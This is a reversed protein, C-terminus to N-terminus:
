DHTNKLFGSINKLILFCVQNSKTYPEPGAPDVNKMTVKEVIQKEKPFVRLDLPEEQPPEQYEPTTTETNNSLVTELLFNDIEKTSREEATEDSINVLITFNKKDLPHKDFLLRAVDDGIINSDVDNPKFLDDEM